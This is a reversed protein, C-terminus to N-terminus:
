LWEDRANPQTAQPYNITQTQEASAPYGAPGPVQTTGDRPPTTRPVAPRHTGRPRRTDRFALELGNHDMYVGPGGIVVDYPEHGAPTTLRVEGGVKSRRAIYQPLGPEWFALWPDAQLGGAGLTFGDGLGVQGGLGVPDLRDRITFPFTDSWKSPAKLEGGLPEGNRRLIAVLGRVDKRDRIVKRRWVIAVIIAAIAILVGLIDPWWQALFGPPKTVTFDQALEGYVLGSTADIAEVRVNITGTPSDKAVTVAFPENAPSGSQVTFPATPSTLTADPIAPSLVLRLQTASGTQNTFAVQGTINSGAQVINGSTFTPFANFGQAQSGVDVSQPVQTAYLGYGAAAGTFTVTGPQGPATFTGAWEGPQGSVPHVPVDQTGTLDSGTATVGVDMNTLTSQDTIPRGNLGLVGLTIAIPQGLKASSPNATILARVAGGWFTTARVLESGMSKPASLVISWTGVDAQTINALHLVEFRSSQGTIASTDSWAPGSPPDYTVSINPGNVNYVGRDVTIAAGIAIAPITVHLTVSQGPPLNNNDSNQGLCAAEAYFKDLASVADDPNNVWTAQPYVVINTQACVQPASSGAMQDLRQLATAESIGTGIETGFGLPWLEVGDQKATALQTTIAAQEADQRASATTGYQPDRSVDWAGDTMMLIVKIANKPPLPTVTSTPGLYTLADGLAAAYDTDDGQQESRRHLKSVCTSLYDLNSAGSAITPACDVETAVEGPVVNNVGGFGIVTVRSSPHLLSSVIMGATAQEDAVKQATESGSEDVLVVLDLAKLNSTGSGATASASSAPGSAAGAPAALAPLGAPLGALLAALVAAAAAGLLRMGRAGTASV